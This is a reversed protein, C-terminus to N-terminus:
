IIDLKKLEALLDYYAEIKSTNRTGRPGPMKMYFRNATAYSGHVGREVLSKAVPIVSAMLGALNSKDNIRANVIVEDHFGGFSEYEIHMSVFKRDGLPELYGTPKIYHPADYGLIDSVMSGKTVEKSHNREPETLSLFDSNGGINFQAISLVKRGREAMHELLDATLPTAGTAADDGLVLAGVKEYRTVVGPSNAAPPPTLNVFAAAHGTRRVYESVAYAYTLTAGGTCSTAMKIFEGESEAFKMPETTIVNVVVDPRLKTLESVFEDIAQQVDGMAQELGLADIPLGNTSSCHLGRSVYVDKLSRPISSMPVLKSAISYMDKGVKSNDVDFVGVVEIDEPGYSKIIGHLPIGVPEIEKAKLKELGAMFYSAGAGAGLLVTRISLGKRGSM